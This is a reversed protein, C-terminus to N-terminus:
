IDPFPATPPTFNSTYRAVGKTIRLDDIYGNYDRAPTNAVDRGISLANSNTSYTGVPSNNTGELTGNFFVRLTSSALSFAIHHWTNLALSSTIGVVNLYVAGATNFLAVAIKNDAGLYILWESNTVPSNRKDLLFQLRNVESPRVWLECTFDSDASFGTNHPVTLYDGTGDFAISSGGFKGQATSIKADGVATVTKPTPSSDTITTSGNAGNGHLLLSVNQFYEDAFTYSPTIKWSM